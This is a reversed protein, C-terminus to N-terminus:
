KRKKSHTCYYRHKEVNLAQFPHQPALALAARPHFSYHPWTSAGTHLKPSLYASDSIEGEKWAGVAWGLVCTGHTVETVYQLSQQTVEPVYQLSQQTVETM